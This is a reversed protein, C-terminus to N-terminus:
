DMRIRIMDKETHTLLEYGDDRIVVLDEIRVGGWDPIYIGPEITVVMGSVLEIDSKQSVAPGEHVNLGVGHGLSHGFYKDYGDKEFFKRVRQDIECAEKGPKLTELGLIQGKLVTEYIKIQRSDPDDGLFVTRTMDSSYGDYVAGFDIVIFDGPSFSRETSRGHPLSSRKGSAIVFDFANKESGFKKLLYELEMEIERETVGVKIFPLLKKFARDSIEAATRIKNIEEETKVMRVKEVTESFPKWEVSIENNEVEKKMKIYQDYSLHEAEFGLRKINEEELIEVLTKYFQRYKQIKFSSSEKEAQEIYRFDTLLFNEETTIMLAGSGTFGSLYRCNKSDTILFADVKEEEIKNKIKLLRKM